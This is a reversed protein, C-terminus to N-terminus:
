KTSHVIKEIPAHHTGCKPCKEFEEDFLEGCYSCKYVVTAM